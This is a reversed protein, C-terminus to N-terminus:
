DFYYGLEKLEQIRFELDKIAIDQGEKTLFPMITTIHGPKLEGNKSNKMAWLASAIDMLNGYGIREGLKKVDYIELNRKLLEQNNENNHM